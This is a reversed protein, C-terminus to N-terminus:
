RFRRRAWMLCLLLMSATLGATVATRVTDPGVLPDAQGFDIVALLTGLFSLVTFAVAIVALQDSRALTAQEARRAEFARLLDLKVSLADLQRGMRWVSAVAGWIRVSLATSAALHLDLTELVARFVSIEEYLSAYPSASSPEHGGDRVRALERFVRRDVQSIAAYYASVLALVHVATAVQADTCGWAVSSGLGPHFGGQGVRVSVEDSCEDAVPALVDLDLGERDDVVHLVHGWLAPAAAVHRDEAGPLRLVCVLRATVENVLPLMWSTLSLDVLDPASPDAGAGARTQVVYELTTAGFGVDTVQLRGGALELVVPVDGFRAEVRELPGGALEAHLVEHRVQLAMRPGARRLQEALDASFDGYGSDACPEWAGQGQCPLFVSETNESSDRLPFTVVLIVRRPTVSRM